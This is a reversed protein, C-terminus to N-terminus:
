GTCKYEYGIHGCPIIEPPLPSPSIDGPPIDVCGGPPPYDRPFIELIYKWVGPLLILKLFQTLICQFMCSESCFRIVNRFISPDFHDIKVGETSGGRVRPPAGAGASTQLSM